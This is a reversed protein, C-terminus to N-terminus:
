VARGLNICAMPLGTRYKSALRAGLGVLRLGTGIGPDVYTYESKWSLRSM